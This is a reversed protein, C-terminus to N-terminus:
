NKIKMLNLAMMIRFRNENLTVDYGLIDRIASLKYKITNRHFFLDDATQSVLCENFMFSELVSMYDSKNDKDYKILKGLTEEIFEEAVSDDKISYLMKYIGLDSYAMVRQKLAPMMNFAMKAKDYSSRIEGPDDVTSGIAIRLNTREESMLMLDNRIETLTYGILLAVITSGEPFTVNRSIQCRFAEALEATADKGGDEYGAILVTYKGQSFFRDTEMLGLYKDSDDPHMVAKKFADERTRSNRDEYILMDFSEHLMDIFPASYNVWMLPFRKENCYAILKDSPKMDDKTSMLLGAARRALFKDIADKREEEDYNNLSANFVIEMGHLYNAYDLFELDHAWRAEAGFFSDTLLETGYKRYIENFLKEIGISM